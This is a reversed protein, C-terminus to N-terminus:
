IQEMPRVYIRRARKDQRGLGAHMRGDSTMAASGHIFGPTDCSEARRAIELLQKREALSLVDTAGTVLPVV